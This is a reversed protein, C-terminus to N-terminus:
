VMQEHAEELQINSPTSALLQRTSSTSSFSAQSDRNGMVGGGIGVNPDSSQPTGPLELDMTYGLSASTHSLEAMQPEETEDYMVPALTSNTEPYDDGDISTEQLGHVVLRDLTQSDSSMQSGDRSPNSKLSGKRASRLQPESTLSGEQSISQPSATSHSSKSDASASSPPTERLALPPMALKTEDKFLEVVDGTAPTAMPVKAKKKADPLSRVSGNAMPNTKTENEERYGASQDESTRSRVSAASSTRGKKRSRRSRGESSASGLLREGAGGEAGARIPSPGNLAEGLPVAEYGSPVNEQSTQHEEDENPTVATSGIKRLARIRLLARFPARCIPCCSAQYRLSDACTSCLCLHRCPLILTDRPDSMCIVCDSGIDDAFEDEEPTKGPEGSNKNEIGFIEQLMYYVGDVMQKQKLPKIYYSAEATQELTALLAHSHGAHEEGEEVICQIVIPIVDKAPNYNFEDDDFTSPDFTFAPQYFTQSSGREYHFTESRLTPDRATYIAHGTQIEERAFFHVTIATRAETDFTFEISYHGDGREEEDRLAPVLKLSDKRINVLSKLTKIPEKPQLSPYPFPAPRTSLYNLDTNEGFLYAEPQPTDFRQGGMSFYSGFYCGTKPPYRYAASASIDLEQVNSRQISTLGGM